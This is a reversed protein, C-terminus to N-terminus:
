LQLQDFPQPRRDCRFTHFDHAPGAGWLYLAPFKLVSMRDATSLTGDQQREEAQNPIRARDRHIPDISGAEGAGNEAPMAKDCHRLIGKGYGARREAEVEIRRALRRVDDDDVRKAANPDPLMQGPPPLCIDRGNQVLQEGVQWRKGGALGLQEAEGLGEYSLVYEAVRSAGSRNQEQILGCRTQIGFALRHDVVQNVLRECAVRDKDHGVLHTCLRASQSRPCVHKHM